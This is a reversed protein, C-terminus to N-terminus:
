RRLDGAIEPRELLRFGASRFRSAMEESRLFDVFAAAQPGAKVTRAIPYRIPDHSEDPFVGLVVVKTSAKADTAYVIGLDAEGDEVLRLAARVDKAPLFRGKMGDLWGLWALSQEAYRGAPVSAPEGIAIRAVGDFQGVSAEKALTARLSSSAPAILVLDNALLDERSTADVATAAIAADMWKGDASLFLDAPAGANIQKALTSSSDFSFVVPTGTAAEFRQGADKMVDTTSAAAFVTVPRPAPKGECSALFLAFVPAILLAVFRM